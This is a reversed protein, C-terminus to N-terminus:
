SRYKKLLKIVISYYKALTGQHDDDAARATQLIYNGKYHIRSLMSFVKEFDANGTGLPVTAGNLKRDKVHVNKIRHGYEGIEHEPDFGYSASNGIDYNIGFCVPNLKSIFKRIKTPEYDTEFIIMQKNKLLIREILKLFGLLSRRQQDNELSGKDVLPLVIQNIGIKKSCKLVEFLRKKSRDSEDTKMKWFPSQMFCDGTLSVIKLNYKKSLIKIRKQGILNMIPNLNFDEQDITWEMLSIDIKNAIKFENEWTLKPFSQIKNGIMPSLRGQMFGVKKKISNLSISRSRM